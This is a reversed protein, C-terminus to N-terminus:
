DGKHVAMLTENIYESHRKIDDSAWQELDDTLGPIMKAFVDFTHKPVFSGRRIRELVIRRKADFFKNGLASNDRRALLCMNGINDIKGSAKLADEYVQRQDIDRKSLGLVEEVDADVKGLMKRINDKQSATLIQEKGEPTQPFIHELSWDERKFSDFDFRAKYGGAPFVSLALLVAHIKNDDEGYMLKTVGEDIGVLRDKIGVLWDKLDKKTQESLCGHLFRLDNHKSGKANRCFGILHYTEDTDYLDALRKQIEFIKYLANSLDPLQNYFDFLPFGNVGGTKSHSFPRGLTMAALSLLQHMGDSEGDFYYSCIEPERAWRQVSEWDKGLSLRVEM